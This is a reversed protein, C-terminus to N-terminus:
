SFFHLWHSDAENIFQRILDGTSLQSYDTANM